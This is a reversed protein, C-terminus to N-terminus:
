SNTSRTRYTEIRSIYKRLTKERYREDLREDGTFATLIPLADFPARLHMAKGFQDFRLFHGLEKLCLMADKRDEDIAQDIHAQLISIAAELQRLALPDRRRTAPHLINALRSKLCYMPHMVRVRVTCNREDRQADFEIESVGNALERNTVGLVAGLLDIVLSKGNYDATVIATNPTAQDITPFSAQGELVHALARAANAFGFYDIDKSALPIDRFQQPIRNRYFWAWLATAQGGVVVLDDREGLKSAIEIVEHADFRPRISVTESM